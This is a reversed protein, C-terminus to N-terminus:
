LTIFAEQVDAKHAREKFDCHTCVMEYGDPRSAYRGHGLPVIKVAPMCVLRNGCTCSPYERAEQLAYDHVNRM